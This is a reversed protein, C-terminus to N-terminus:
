AISVIFTTQALSLVLINTMTYILGSEVSSSTLEM